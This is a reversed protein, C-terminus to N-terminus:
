SRYNHFLFHNQTYHLYPNGALPNTYNCDTLQPDAAAPHSESSNSRIGTSILSPPSLTPISTSSLATGSTRARKHQSSGPLQSVQSANNSAPNLNDDLQEHATRKTGRLRSRELRLRAYRESQRIAPNADFFTKIREVLAAVM